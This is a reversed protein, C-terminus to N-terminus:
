STWAFGLLPMVRNAQVRVDGVRQWQVDIVNLPLNDFFHWVKWDQEGGYDKDYAVKVLTPQFQYDLGKYLMTYYAVGLATFTVECLFHTQKSVPGRGEKLAIKQEREVAEMPDERLGVKWSDAPSDAKMDSLDKRLLEPITRLPRWKIFFCRAQPLSKPPRRCTASSVCSDFQFSSPRESQIFSYLHCYMCVYMHVYMCTYDWDKLVVHGLRLQARPLRAGIQAHAM